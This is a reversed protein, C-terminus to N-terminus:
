IRLFFLFSPNGFHSYRIYVIDIGNRNIYKYIDKYWILSVLRGMRGKRCKEIPTNNVKMCGDINDRQMFLVKRFEEGFAAVQANIKKGVGSNVDIAENTLYLLKKYKM